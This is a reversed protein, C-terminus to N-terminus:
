LKDGSDNTSKKKDNCPQGCSNSPPPTDLYTMDLTTTRYRDAYRQMWKKRIRKKRSRPLRRWSITIMSLSEVMQKGVVQKGYIQMLNGKRTKRISRVSAPDGIGAGGIRLPVNLAPISPSLFSHIM